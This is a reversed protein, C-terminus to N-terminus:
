DSLQLMFVQEELVVHASFIQVDESRATGNELKASM